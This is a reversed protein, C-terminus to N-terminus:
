KLEEARRRIEKAAKCARCNFAKENCEDGNMCYGDAIKASEEYAAKILKDADESRIFWPAPNEREFERGEEYAIAKAEEIEKRHDAVFMLCDGAMPPGRRAEWLAETLLSELGDWTCPDTVDAFQVTQKIKEALQQPTMM